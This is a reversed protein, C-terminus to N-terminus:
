FFRFKGKTKIDIFDEEGVPEGDNAFIAKYKRVESYKTLNPREDVFPSKNTEGLFVFVEEDGRKCFILISEQRDMDFELVLTNGTRNVRLYPRPVAVKQGAQHTMGGESFSMLSSYM